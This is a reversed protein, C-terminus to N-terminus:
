CIAKHRFKGVKSLRPPAKAHAETRHAVLHVARGLQARRRRAVVRAARVPRLARVHVAVAHQEPLEQAAAQGKAVAGGGVDRAEHAAALPGGERGGRAHAAAPAAEHAAAPGGVGERPGGHGGDDSGEVGEAGREVTGVRSKWMSTRSTVTTPSLTMPTHCFHTINVVKKTTTAVTGVSPPFFSTITGLIITHTIHNTQKKM